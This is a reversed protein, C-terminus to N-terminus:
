ARSRRRSALAVIAAVLALWVATPAPTNSERARADFLLHTEDPQAEDAAHTARTKTRAIAMKTPDDRAHVFLLVEFEQEANADVPIEVALTVNRTEGSALAIDGRPIVVAEQASNGALDVVYVDPAGGNRITFAYTMVSGPLGAKEVAGAAVIEIVEAAESIGTLRDHYENLPLSLVFDEVMLQPELPGSGRVNPLPADISLVLAMFAGKRYPIYDSEETPTLELSFPTRASSDLTITTEEASALEIEIRDDGRGQMYYLAARLTTEGNRKGAISGKLDGLRELDFDLGMQLGPSLPIWWESRDDNWSPTAFPADETHDAETNMWGYGSPFAADFVPTFPGANRASAHLFLEPHHGAPQPIPTHLVGMRMRAQTAADRTSQVTFNFSTYGGHDHAFPVSVLIAVNREENAPVKTPTQVSVNWGQPVDDVALAYEDEVDAANRLTAQFVFTTAGGNSVRVRDPSSVVVNGQSYDGRALTLSAGAGEVDPMRDRAALEAIGFMAQAAASEVSAFHVIDGRGPVRQDESVLFVKQLEARLTGATVDVVVPVSSVPQRDGDDLRYLWGSSREADSIGDRFYSTSLEFEGGTWSFSTMIQTFLPESALSAVAVTLAITEDTEALTLSLLDGAHTQQVSSAPVPPTPAPADAATASFAVDGAPDELAAKGEEQAGGEPALLPLVLLLAVLARM